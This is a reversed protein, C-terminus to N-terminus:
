QEGGTQDPQSTPNAAGGLLLKDIWWRPILIREGIRVSPIQQRKTVRWMHSVSVGLKQATEEITYAVRETDPAKKVSTSM